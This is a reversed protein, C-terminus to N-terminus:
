QAHNIEFRWTMCTPLMWENYFPLIKIKSSGCNAKIVYIKNNLIKM